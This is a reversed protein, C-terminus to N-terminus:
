REGGGDLVTRGAAERGGERGGQNWREGSQALARPDAHVRIGSRLCEVAQEFARARARACARTQAGCQSCVSGRALGGPSCSM